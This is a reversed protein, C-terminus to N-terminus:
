YSDRLCIPPGSSNTGQFSSLQRPVPHMKGLVMSFNEALLVMAIALLFASWVGELALM